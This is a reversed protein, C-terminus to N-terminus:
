KLAVTITGSKAGHAICKIYKRSKTITTVVPRSDISSIVWYVFTQKETKFRITFHTFRSKYNMNVITLPGIEKASVFQIKAPHYKM